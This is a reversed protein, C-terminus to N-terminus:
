IVKLRHNLGSLLSFTYIGNNPQQAIFGSSFQALNVNFSNGNATASGVVTGTCDSKIYVYVADSMQLGDVQMIPTLSYQFGQTPSVISSASPNNPPTLDITYRAYNSSCAIVPSGARIVRTHLDQDGEALATSITVYVATSTATSSGVLQNCSSDSYVEVVDASQVGSVRVIPTSDNTLQTTPTSRQINVEGGDTSSEVDVFSSERMQAYGCGIM